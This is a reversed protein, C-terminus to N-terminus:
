CRLPGDPSGTLTCREKSRRGGILQRLAGVPAQQTTGAQWLAVAVEHRPSEPDAHSAEAVAHLEGVVGPQHGEHQLKAPGCTVM